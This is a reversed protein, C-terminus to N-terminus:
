TDCQNTFYRCLFLDQYWSNSITNNLSHLYYESTPACIFFNLALHVPQMLQRMKFMQKDIHGTPFVQYKSVKDTNPM